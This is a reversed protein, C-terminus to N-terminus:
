ENTKEQDPEANAPSEEPKAAAPAKAVAPVTLGAFIQWPVATGTEKKIADAREIADRVEKDRAAVVDDRDSNLSKCVASHSILCRDLKAGQAEAEKLQDIWPFTPRIWSFAVPENGLALDKAGRAILWEALPTYYDDELADQLDSFNQYAQELVARSQSYNSKTWDLLILELPLGLPLGLLRLFMRLSESFSDSPINRQIGEVKEGPKGHFILAVDLEHIRTAPDGESEATGSKSTDVASEAYAKRPAEERTISIAMRSLMQWAIAESDCVDNIRHLMPFVSQLLPVGRTQSSRDAHTMFLFDAAQIDTGKSRVVQGGKGWPCVRFSVPRGDGDLKIGTTAMGADTIQEAEILQIPGDKKKIAGTDGCVIGERCFMKGCKRGSFLHRIEPKRQWLNWAAEIRAARDKDGTVQLKFGNGVIYAVSRDIMGRYIPNDRYFARSQNILQPRSYEAHIDGSGESYSRGERTASQVSRYGLATYVGPRCEIDLRMPDSRTPLPSRVDM